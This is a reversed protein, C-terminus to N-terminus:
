LRSKWAASPNLRKSSGSWNPLSNKGPCTSRQFHEDLAKEAAARYDQAYLQSSTLLAGSIILSLYKMKINKM